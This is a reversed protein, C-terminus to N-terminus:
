TKAPPRIEALCSRLAAFDIPKAFLAAFGARRARARDEDQAFGTLVLGVVGPQRSRLSCFLEEGSGDPLGLDTLVVEPRFEMAVALAEAVTGACRVEHGARGLLRALVAATDAHDEVM